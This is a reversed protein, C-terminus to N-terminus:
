GEQGIEAEKERRTLLLLIIGAAISIAGGVGLGM